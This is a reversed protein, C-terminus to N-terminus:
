HLKNQKKNQSNKADVAVTIVANVYHAYLDSFNLRNNKSQNLKDIFQSTSIKNNETNAINSILEKAGLRIQALANIIMLALNEHTEENIIPRYIEILFQEPLSFKPDLLKGRALKGLSFNRNQKNELSGIFHTHDLLFQNADKIKILNTRLALIDDNDKFFASDIKKIYDKFSPDHQFIIVRELLHNTMSLINLTKSFEKSYLWNLLQFSSKTISATTLLSAAFISHDLFLNDKFLNSVSRLAIYFSFKVVNNLVSNYFIKKNRIYILCNPSIEFNVIDTKILDQSLMNRFTIKQLDSQSTNKNPNSITKPSLLSYQNTNM